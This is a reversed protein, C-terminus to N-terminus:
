EDLFEDSSLKVETWGDPPWITYSNGEKIARFRGWPLGTKVLFTCSDACETVQRRNPYVALLGETWSRGFNDSVREKIWIRLFGDMTTFRYTTEGGRLYLSKEAVVYSRIGSNDRQAQTMDKLTQNIGIFVIGFMLIVVLWLALPMQQGRTRVSM